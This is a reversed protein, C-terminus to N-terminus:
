IMKWCPSPVPILLKGKRLQKEIARKEKRKLHSIPMKNMLRTFGPDSRLLDLDDISDGGAIQLLILCALIQADKFGSSSLNVGLVSGMKVDGINKQTMMKM